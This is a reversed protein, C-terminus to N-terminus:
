KNVASKWTFIPEVLRGIYNSKTVLTSDEVSNNDGMAIWGRHTKKILRHFIKVKDKNIYAVFDHKELDEYPADHLTIYSNEFPLYLSNSSGVSRVYVDGNIAALVIASIRAEEESEKIVYVPLNNKLESLRSCEYVGFVALLVIIVAIVISISGQKKNSNLM